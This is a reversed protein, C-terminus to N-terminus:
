VIWISPPVTGTFCSLFGGGGGHALINSVGSPSAGGTTPGISSTPSRTAACAYEAAFQSASVQRRCMSSYPVVLSCSPQSAILLLRLAASFGRATYRSGLVM